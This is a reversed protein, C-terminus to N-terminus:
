QWNEVFVPPLVAAGDIFRYVAELDEEFKTGDVVLYRWASFAASRDRQAAKCALDWYRRSLDKDNVCAAAISLAQWVNKGRAESEDVAYELVKGFFEMPAQRTAGWEAVAYNFAMVMDLEGPDPREVSVVRMADSFRGQSILALMLTTKYIHSRLVQADKMRGLVLATVRAAERGILFNEALSVQEGEDLSSFATSDVVMRFDHCELRGCLHIARSVDFYDANELELAERVKALASSANGNALDTYAVKILTQASKFGLAVSEAVLADAEKDKGLRSLLISLSHLVEGDKSHWSQIRNLRQYLSRDHFSALDTFRDSRLFRLVADRDRSNDQTIVSSLRRFERALRSQPRSTTFIASDLLSLSDYRHILCDPKKFGLRREADQIRRVLVQEEDDLFPINSPVFYLQIDRHRPPGSESRIDKVVHELGRINEENPIFCAAVADPLQRTCIGGVDTLGTRSDVLVYDPSLVQSWQARLDEFLLYGDRKEYLEHWDIANLRRSYGNDRVGSRMLHLRGSEGRDLQCSTVFDEVAPAQNTDLYATVFDVIGPADKEVGKWPFSDLGPAELDFDVMLVTKGCEVLHAAVNVLALTRGVGGKFSYFTVVYM